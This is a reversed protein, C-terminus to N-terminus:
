ISLDLINLAGFLIISGSAALMMGVFLFGHNFILWLGYSVLATGGFSVSLAVIIILLAKIFKM